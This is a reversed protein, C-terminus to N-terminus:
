SVDILALGSVPDFRRRLYAPPQVLIVELTPRVRAALLHGGYAQGDQRGVVVHAHVKPRDGEMAIDGVLSLVEVQAPMEIRRYARREWDFYGLTVRAFAGIATFHGATLGETTAFGLLGEVPDDDTEFVLVFTRAGDENLVRSKM